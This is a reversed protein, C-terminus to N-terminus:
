EVGDVMLKFRSPETAKGIPELLEGHVIWRRMACSLRWRSESLAGSPATGKECFGGQLDVHFCPTKASSSAALADLAFYLLPASVRRQLKCKLSVCVKRHSGCIQAAQLQRQTSRSSRARM